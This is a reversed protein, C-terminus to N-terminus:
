GRIQDTHAGARDIHAFALCALRLPRVWGPSHIHPCVRGPFASTYERWQFVPRWVQVM